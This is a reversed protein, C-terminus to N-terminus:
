ESLIKQKPMRLHRHYVMMVVTWGVIVAMLDSWRWLDSEPSFLLLGFAFFQCMSIFYIPWMYFWGASVFGSSLLLCSSFMSFSSSSSSSSSSIMSICGSSYYEMKSDPVRFGAERETKEMSAKMGLTKMMQKQMWSRQNAYSELYRRGEYLGILNWDLLELIEVLMWHFILGLSCGYLIQRLSHYGLLYTNSLILISVFLYTIYFFMFIKGSQTIFLKRIFFHSCPSISRSSHIAKQQVGHLYLLAFSTYVHFLYHGSVSNSHNNCNTDGLYSKLANCFFYSSLYFMYSFLVKISEYARLSVSVSVSSLNSPSSSSASTPTTSSSSAAAAAASSSSASSSSFSSASSSNSIRLSNSISNPSPIISTGNLQTSPPSPSTTPTSSSSSSPSIDRTGVATTTTGTGGGGGNAFAAHHSVPFIAKLMCCTFLLLLMIPTEYSSPRHPKSSSPISSSSSISSSSRNPSSPSSISSPSDLDSTNSSNLPDYLLKITDDIPIGGLESERELEVESEREKEKEEEDISRSTRSLGGGGGGGSRELQDESEGKLEGRGGGRGEAEGSLMKPKRHRIKFERKM